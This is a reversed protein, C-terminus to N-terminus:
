PVRLWNEIRQTAKENIFNHTSGCDILITIPTKDTFVQIRLTRCGRTENLAQLSIECNEMIEEDDQSQHM